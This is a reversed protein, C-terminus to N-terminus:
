GIWSISAVRKDIRQCRLRASDDGFLMTSSTGATPMVGRCFCVRASASTVTAEQSLSMPVSSSSSPSAVPYWGRDHGGFGCREGFPDIFRGRKTRALWSQTVGGAEGDLASKVGGEGALARAGLEGTDGDIRACRCHSAASSLHASAASRETVGGFPRM